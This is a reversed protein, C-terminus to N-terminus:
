TAEKRLLYDLARKVGASNDGMKGLSTNCLNCLGGRFKGTAPDHDLVIKKSDGCIECPSSRALAIVEESVGYRKAIRRNSTEQMWRQNYQKKREKNGPKSLWARCASRHLEPNEARRQRDRSNIEDRHQARHRAQAARCKEPNQKRWIRQYEAGFKIIEM